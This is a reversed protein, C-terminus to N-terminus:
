CEPNADRIAPLTLLLWPLVAVAVTVAGPWPHLVGFPLFGIPRALLLRPLPSLVTAAWGAGVVTRWAKGYPPREILALGLWAAVVGGFFTGLVFSPAILGVTLWRVTAPPMAAAHMAMGISQLVLMLLLGAFLGAVLGAAVSFAALGADAMTRLAGHARRGTVSPLVSLHAWGVLAALASAPLVALPLSPAVQWQANGSLATVAHQVSVTAAEDLGLGLAVWAVAGNWPVPRAPGPSALWPSALTPM